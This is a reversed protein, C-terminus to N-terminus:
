RALRRFRMRRAMADAFAPRKAAVEGGEARRPAPAPLDSLFARLRERKEQEDPVIVSKAHEYYSRQQGETPLARTAVRVLEKKEDDVEGGDAYAGRKPVVAGFAAKLMGRGSVRGGCAACVRERAM